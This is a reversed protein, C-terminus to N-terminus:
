AQSILWSGAVGAIGLMVIVWMDAPAIPGWARLLFSLAPHAGTEYRGDGIILGITVSSILFTLIVYITMTSASETDRIKRTIMHMAGYLLASIAPLLSAIQFAESGPQVILLVGGFGLIIALWRRPGVTEKLFIVSMLAIALPSVFFI